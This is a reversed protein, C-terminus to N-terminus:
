SSPALKYIRLRNNGGALTITGRKLMEYLLMKAASIRMNTQAALETPTIAKMATLTRTLSAEDLNSTGMSGTKRETQTKGKKEPKKEDKAKVQQAKAMKAVTKKKAGGM